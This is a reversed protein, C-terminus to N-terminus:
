IFGDQKLQKIIKEAMVRFRKGMVATGGENNVQARWYRKDMNPNFLSADYTIEMYGGYASLVGGTAKIVLVADPKYAVANTAYAHEDLQLPSMAETQNEIGEQTLLESLDNRLLDSYDTKVSGHDVLVYLRHLKATIAPDRVADIRSSACGTAFGAILCLKGISTLKM